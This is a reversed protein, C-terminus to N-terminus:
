ERSRGHALVYLREFDHAVAHWKYQEALKRATRSMRQYRDADETIELLAARLAAPNDPEVLLGNEGHLVLERNSSLDTAIVPLGMAMAELLVLSMGESKSPLVFVDAARYLNQLQEGDARGHFHVSVLGLDATKRKLETELFGEGVLTTEFRGSIGALAELLVAVNKEVALRGVFLIRPVPRLTRADDNFFADGVGNRIAIIKAPDVAYKTAVAQRQSETFVIVAAASRLVRALVIPM